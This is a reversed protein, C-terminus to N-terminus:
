AGVRGGPVGVQGVQLIMAAKLRKHYGSQGPLYLLPRAEKSKRGSFYGGGHMFVLTPGGSPHSRHRTSTSYTGSGRTATASTPWGSSM